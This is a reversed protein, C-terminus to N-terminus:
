GIASNVRGGAAPGRLRRLIQRSWRDPHRLDPLDHHGRKASHYILATDRPGHLLRYSLRPGIARGNPMELRCYRSTSRWPGLMNPASHVPSTADVRPVARHVLAVPGFDTQRCM